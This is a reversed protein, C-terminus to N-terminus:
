RCTSADSALRGMKSCSPKTATVVVVWGMAERWSPTDYAKVTVATLASPLLALDAGDLVVTGTTAAPGRATLM